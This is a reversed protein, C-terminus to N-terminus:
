SSDMLSLLLSQTIDNTCYLFQITGEKIEKREKKREEKREKKREKYKKELHNRQVTRAVSSSVRYM